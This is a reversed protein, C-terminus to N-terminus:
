RLVQFIVALSEGSALEIDRVFLKYNVSDIVVENDTEVWNSSEDEGQGDGSAVIARLATFNESPVAVWPNYYRDAPAPPITFNVYSGSFLPNAVRSTRQGQASINASNSNNANFATEGATKAENQGATTDARLASVSATLGYNITETAPAGPQATGAPLPLDVVSNDKKTVSLDNGNIALNTVPNEAELTDIRGTLATILGRVATDDYVSAVKVWGNNVTTYLGPTNSGHVVNLIFQGTAVAPLQNGSPFDPVELRVVVSQWASGRYQYVGPENNGVKQTLVFLDNQAPAGPFATGFTFPVNPAQGTGDVNILATGANNWRVYKGGEPAPFNRLAEAPIDVVVKGPNEAKLSDSLEVQYTLIRVPVTAM